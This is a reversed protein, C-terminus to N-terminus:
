SGASCMPWSRSCRATSYLEIREETAAEILAYPTSGWLLASVVTNTDLVVRV